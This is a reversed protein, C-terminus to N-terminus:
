NITRIYTDSNKEMYNIIEPTIKMRAYFSTQLSKILNVTYLRQAWASLANKGSGPHSLKLM